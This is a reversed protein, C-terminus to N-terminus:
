CINKNLTNVLTTTTTITTITYYNSKCSGTCDTGILMLTTLEFGNMALHVGYLIIHLLKDTVKIAVTRHNEGNEEVLLVSRWWIVSINFTNSDMVAGQINIHELYTQVGSWGPLM